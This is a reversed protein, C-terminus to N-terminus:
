WNLSFSISLHYASPLTWIRHILNKREMTFGRHIVRIEVLRFSIWLLSMTILKQHPSTLVLLIQLFNHLFPTVCLFHLLKAVAVAHSITRAYSCRYLSASTYGFVRALLSFTIFIGINIHIIKQVTSFKKKWKRKGM